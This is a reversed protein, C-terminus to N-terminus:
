SQGYWPVISAIILLFVIGGFWPLHRLRIQQKPRGIRVAMVMTLGYALAVVVSKLVLPLAVWGRLPKQIPDTLLTIVWLLPNVLYLAATFTLVQWERRALLGIIGIIFGSAGCIFPVLIAGSTDSGAGIAISDRVSLPMILLGFLISFTISTLLLTGSPRTPQSM